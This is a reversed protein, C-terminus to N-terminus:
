NKAEEEREKARQEDAAAKEAAIRKKEAVDFDDRLVEGLRKVRKNM